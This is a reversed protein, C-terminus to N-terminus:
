FEVSDDDPYFVFGLRKGTQIKSKNIREKMQGVTAIKVNDYPPVFLDFDLSYLVASEIINKIASKDIIATEFDNYLFGLQRKGEVFYHNDKNIFIRAILYGLDDMRSYKFSDALFNYINIIGSYTSMENNQVYNTKWIGHGRDFEFINSHMNIILLDGAIKIEVEFAGRDKYEILIKKDIKLIDNYEKVLDQLVEKILVITNVTNEYVQQKVNSKEKLTKIILEKASLKKKM